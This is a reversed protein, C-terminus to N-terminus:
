SVFRVGVEADNTAVFNYHNNNHFTAHGKIRGNPNLVCNFLPGQVRLALDSALCSALVALGNVWANQKELLAVEAKLYAQKEEDDGGVLFNVFEDFHEPKKLYALAEDKVVSGPKREQIARVSWFCNGDGKVDVIRQNSTSFLQRFALDVSEGPKSQAVFSAAGQLWATSVWTTQGGTNSGLNAIETMDGCNMLIIWREEDIVISTM